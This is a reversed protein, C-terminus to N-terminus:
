GPEMQAVKRTGIRRLWATAKHSSKMAPQEVFKFTLACIVIVLPAMATMALWHEVPTLERLRDFGMVFRFFVFLVLGHLLYVSYTMEGLYRSVDSALMGLLSNGGAILIFAISLMLIALYSHTTPFFALVTGILALAVLGNWHSPAFRHLWTSRVAFAAAVGGGFSLWHYVSAHRAIIITVAAGAVLASPVLFRWPARVGVGLALLPLMLYFIWEYPLTWIVDAIIVSTNHVGNIGPDGLATFTLWRSVESLVQPISQHLRWNSLHACILFLAAMALFYLPGLRLTRSVYLRTWDLHKTRAELIKSFFLFGTIMFFLAVAIQGFNTYVHSPPDAWESGRAYFYWVAGHHVFVFFALYGRLGDIAAFRGQAPPPGFRWVLILCTTLAATLPLLAFLPNLPSM